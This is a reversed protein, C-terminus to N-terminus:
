ESLTTMLVPKGTRKAEDRYRKPIIFERCVNMYLRTAEGGWFGRASKRPKTPRVYIYWCGWSTSGTALSQWVLWRKLPRPPTRKKTTKKATKKVM